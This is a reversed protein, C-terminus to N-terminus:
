RTHSFCYPMASTPMISSKRRRHMTCAYLTKYYKLEEETAYPELLAYSQMFDDDNITLGNMSRYSNIPDIQWSSGVREVLSSVSQQGEVVLGNIKMFLKEKPYSFNENLSQIQALVDSAAADPDVGLKFHKYYPLYDTRANFFFARIELNHSMFLEM